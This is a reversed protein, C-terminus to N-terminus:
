DTMPSISTWSFRVAAHVSSVKWGLFSDDALQLGMFVVLDPDTRDHRVQEFNPPRAFEDTLMLRMHRDDNAPVNRIKEREKERQL